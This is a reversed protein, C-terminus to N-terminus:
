EKMYRLVGIPFLTTPGFIGYPAEFQGQISSADGGRPAMGIRSRGSEGHTILVVNCLGAMIAACAHRVHLLFSTGGVMTFDLYRPTLRLYDAVAIPSQGAAAFGDIESRDIGCDRIANRAAEAHLQLASRDPIVGLQDTEAAGIIAVRGRVSM